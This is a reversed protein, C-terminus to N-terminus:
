RHLAAGANLPLWPGPGLHSGGAWVPLPKGPSLGWGPGGRAPLHGGLAPPSPTPSTPWIYLLGPGLIFLCPLPEWREPPHMHKFAVGIM